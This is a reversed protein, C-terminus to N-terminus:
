TGLHSWPKTGPARDWWFTMHTHADILGPLGTLTHLDIVTAGDPLADAASGVKEIRDGSVIIAPNDIVNGKGDILKKLRIVTVPEAGLSTALMLVFFLARM